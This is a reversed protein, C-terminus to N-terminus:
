CGAGSGKESTAAPREGGAWRDVLAETMWKGEVGASACHKQGCQSPPLVVEQRVEFEVEVWRKEGANGSGTRLLDKTV